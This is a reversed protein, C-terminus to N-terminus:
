LHALTTNARHTKLDVSNDTFEYHAVIEYYNRGLKWTAWVSNFQLTPM